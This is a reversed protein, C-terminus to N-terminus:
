VGTQIHALQLANFINKSQSPNHECLLDTLVSVMGETLLKGKFNRPFGGKRAKRLIGKEILQAKPVPKNLKVALRFKSQTPWRTNNPVPFSDRVSIWISHVSDVRLDDQPLTSNKTDMSVCFVQVDGEKTGSGTSWTITDTRDFGDPRDLWVAPYACIRVKHLLSVTPSHQFLPNPRVFATGIGPDAEPPKRSQKTPPLETIRSIDWASEWTEEFFKMADGLVEPDDSIIMAEKLKSFGRETFNASGLALVQRNFIYVKAHLGKSIKVDAFRKLLQLEEFLASEVQSNPKALGFVIRVKNTCLRRIANTAYQGIYGSVIDVSQLPGWRTQISQFAAIVNSHFELTM